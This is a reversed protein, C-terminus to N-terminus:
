FDVMLPPNPSLNVTQTTGVRFGGDGSGRPPTSGPPDIRGTPIRGSPRAGRPDTLRAPIPPSAPSDPNPEGRNGRQGSPPPSLGSNGTNGTRSTKLHFSANYPPEILIKKQYLVGLSARARLRITGLLCAPSSPAVQGRSPSGNCNERKRKGAFPTHQKCGRRQTPALAGSPTSLTSAIGVM